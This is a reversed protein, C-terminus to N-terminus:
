TNGPTTAPPACNPTNQKAQERKQRLMALKAEYANRVDAKAQQARTELQSLENDLKDLRTKLDEAFAHKSNM